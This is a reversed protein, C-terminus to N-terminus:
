KQNRLLLTVENKELRAKEFNPDERLAKDYFPIALKYKGRTRYITGINLYASGKNKYGHDIAEFFDSIAGDDDVLMLSRSYGRRFYYDPKSQNIRILTDYCHIAKLYEEGQYYNNARQEIESEVVAKRAPKHERCSLFGFIAIFFILKSM